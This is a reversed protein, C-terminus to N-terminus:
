VLHERLAKAVAATNTTVHLKEYVRRFHTTVTHVSIGIRAAIEKKTLGKVLLELIESERETLSYDALPKRGTELAAFRELVLRAVRPDMPSGGQHAQRIAEAIEHVGATKLLYGCAGACIASFIKPADDFVTLILVKTQPAAARIRGLASIGDIGPLGVDLLLVDPKDPAEFAAQAREFSSFGRDCSLGEMQGIARAMSARYASNDEILWVSIRRVGNEMQTGLNEM